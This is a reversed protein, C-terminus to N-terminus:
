SKMMQLIQFDSLNHNRQTDCKSSKNYFNEFKAFHWFKVLFMIQGKSIICKQPQPSAQDDDLGTSEKERGEPTQTATTVAVLRAGNTVTGAVQQMEDLQNDRPKNIETRQWMQGVPRRMQVDNPHSKQTQLFFLTLSKMGSRWGSKGSLFNSFTDPSGNKM